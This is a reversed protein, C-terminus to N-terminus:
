VGLHDLTFNTNRKNIGIILLVVLAQFANFYKLNLGANLLMQQMFLYGVIGALPVLLCPVEGKRLLKGIMLATICLMIVGFNMSVDVVGSTLSFLFGSIGALAHAIAVGAFVVYRSNIGHNAFFYPNSGYIAFSFGLQSRLLVCMALLTVATVGILLQLEGVALSFGNVSGKLALLSAGHVFGNTVIASLLYPIRLVQNMVTVMIGVAFGGLVSTLLVIPLLLDSSLYSAIAGCLYASELAFDPLKLLSLTIYAGCLLPLAILAQELLSYIM